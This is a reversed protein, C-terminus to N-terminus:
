RFYAFHEPDGAAAVVRGGADVVAVVGHHISEVAGGRTVEALVAPM